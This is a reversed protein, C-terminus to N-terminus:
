SSLIKKGKSELPNETKESIGTENSPLDGNRMNEYRKSLEGREISISANDAFISLLNLDEETFKKERTLSNVNLVGKIKGRVRLPVCLASGITREKEILDSFPYNGVKEPTLLLPNGHKLVWGCVSKGADVCADKVKEIEEGHAAACYLKQRQEDYIMLSSQDGGICNLATRSIMEFVRPLEVQSNVMTTVAFLAKLKEYHKELTSSLSIKEEMLNRRMNRISLERLMIYAILFLSLGTYGIFLFNFNLVNQTEEFSKSLDSYFILYVIFATSIVFVAILLIWLHLDKKELEKLEATQSSM